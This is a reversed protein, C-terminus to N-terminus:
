RIWGGSAPSDSLERARRILGSFDWLNATQTGDPEHQPILVLYGRARLSRLIRHLNSRSMGTADMVTQNTIATCGDAAGYAAVVAVVCLEAHSLGLRSMNRSIVRLHQYRM